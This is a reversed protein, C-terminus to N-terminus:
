EQESLELDKYILEEVFPVCKHELLQANTEMHRYLPMQITWPATYTEPDELTAQYRILNPGEPQFRETVKLSSSFHNGARDLQARANFGTTEVVLTDGEWHGNSRGMWTDVPPQSHKSMHITRNAEHWAYVMMIDANGQLIQFPHPLYTARPIGPLYCSTEPDSLPWEAHIEERRALAEPRYPIQGEVVVSQGAPKVFLAGLDWYEPFSEASHAELDWNASNMVQWIGNLDPHDDIGAPEQAQLQTSAAIVLPLVLASRAKNLFARASTGVAHLCYM